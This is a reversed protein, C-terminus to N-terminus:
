TIIRLIIRKWPSLNKLLHWKGHTITDGDPFAEKVIRDLKADLAVIAEESKVLRRDYDNLQLQIDQVVQLIQTLITDSNIM